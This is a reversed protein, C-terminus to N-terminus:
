DTRKPMGIRKKALAVGTVRYHIPTLPSQKNGGHYILGYVRNIERTTGSPFNQIRVNTLNLVLKDDIWVEILGDPNATGDAQVTNLRVHQEVTHWTDPQMFIGAPMWNGAYYQNPQIDSLGGFYTKWEIKQTASNYPPSYALNGPASHHMVTMWNSNQLGPLKMGTEDFGQWVSSEAMISYRFYIETIPAVAQVSTGRLNGKTKEYLWKYFVMIGLPGKSFSATDPSRSASEFRMAPIGGFESATPHTMKPWTGPAEGFMGPEWAM